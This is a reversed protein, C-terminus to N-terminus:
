PRAKRRRRREVIALLGPEATVLDDAIWATWTNNIEVKLRARCGEVLAKASLRDRGTALAERARGLIWGWAEDGDATARWARYAAPTNAAPPPPLVLPGTPPRPPAPPPGPVLLDLQSANM